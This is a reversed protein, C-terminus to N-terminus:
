SGAVKVAREALPLYIQDRPGVYEARPRILRNDAFQEMSHACWGAIRSCAFMSAYYDIPIGVYYLTTATYFEVNTYLRKDPKAEQLAALAARETAEAVSLWQPEAASRSLRQTLQHLVQARPDLTKYVRHGMGMIRKGAAVQQRIWPEARELTGIEKFMEMVKNPAGGHAPGKLAGIAGSIASHMDSLTSTIVRATFTSANFGHDATLIFYADLARAHEEPSPKGHLMYLFNAAQSLDNRPAIPALGRRHRDFAAAITALQATLRTAKRLNAPPSNDEADPDILGLFSVLTRLISMPPSEKPLGRLRELAREPLARNEALQGSFDRLEPESPLRGNWLLYVVEEYTSHQALDEINYGRYQLVGREGDIFSLSTQAAVVRELGSEVTSTASQDAM